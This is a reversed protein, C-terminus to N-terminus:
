RKGFPAKWLFPQALGINAPETSLATSCAVTSWPMVGWWMCRRCVAGSFDTCLDACFRAYQNFFQFDRKSGNNEADEFVYKESKKNIAYNTLHVFADEVNNDDPKQYEEACIRLLGEKYLFVSLHRVSTVQLCLCPGASRFALDIWPGVLVSFRPISQAIFRLPLAERTCNAPRSVSHLHPSERFARCVITGRPSASWVPMRWLGCPVCSVRASMRRWGCLDPPCLLSGLCRCASAICRSADATWRGLPM